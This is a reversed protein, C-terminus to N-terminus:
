NSLVEILEEVNSIEIFSEPFVFLPNTDPINFGTLYLLKKKAGLFDFIGYTGRYIIHTYNVDESFTSIKNFDNHNIRKLANPHWKASIKLEPYLKSIQSAFGLFLNEESELGEPLILIHPDSAINTINHKIQPKLSRYLRLETYLYKDKWLHSIHDYYIKQSILLIDPSISKNDLNKIWVTSRRIISHSYGYIVLKKLNSERLSKIVVKEWSHGEITLFISFPDDNSYKSLLKLLGRSRLYSELGDGRLAAKLILYRFESKPKKLYVHFGFVMSKTYWLILLFYGYISLNRNIYILKKSRLYTFLSHSIYILRNSGGCLESIEKQSGFYFDKEVGNNIVDHSIVLSQYKHEITLSTIRVGLLLIFVRLLGFIINRFIFLADRKHLDEVYKWTLFSESTPSLQPISLIFESDVARTIRNTNKLYSQCVKVLNNQIVM